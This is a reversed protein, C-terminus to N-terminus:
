FFFSIGLDLKLPNFRLNAGKSSFTGTEVQNTISRTGSYDIGLIGIGFEAAVFDNVFICLGPNVYLGLSQGEQFTGDLDAGSGTTNKGQSRTYTVNADVFMGVIRSNGFPIYFRTFISGEYKHNIAYLDRLSINMDEGLNLDLNGLNAMYRNYKFRGGVAINDAVFGGIYPAASLYYGELNSINKLILFNINDGQISSGGVMGGFMVSGKPIFVKKEGNDNFRNIRRKGEKKVSTSDSKESAVAPQVALLAALIYIFTHAKM